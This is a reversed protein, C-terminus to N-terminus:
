QGALWARWASDLGAQDFGYVTTLAGDYSSGDKFIQLLDKMNGWGHTEVLYKVLSVSQAYSQSAGTHDAPFSSTLSRVTILSGDGLATDITTQFSDRITGEAYTAMGESLWSPIDGICGHSEQAVLLHAIEHTLGSAQTETSEPDIAILIINENTFALGGTWAQAHLVAGQLATSDEYILAKIPTTITADIQLRGIDSIVREYLEEGFGNGGSYWELTINDKEFSQWAFRPDAWAIEQWEFWFVEGEVDELAWTFEVVTGPPISGTKKMEWTWKFPDGSVGPPSIRVSM